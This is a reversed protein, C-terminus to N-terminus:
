FTSWWKLVMRSEMLLDVREIPTSDLQNHLRIPPMQISSAVRISLVVMSYVPRGLGDPRPWFLRSLCGDAGQLVLLVEFFLVHVATM